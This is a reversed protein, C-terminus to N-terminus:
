MELIALRRGLRPASLAGGDAVDFRNGVLRLALLRHRTADLSAAESRM